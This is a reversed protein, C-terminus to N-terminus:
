SMKRNRLLKRKEWSLILNIRVRKVMIIYITDEMDELAGLGFNVNTSPRNFAMKRNKGIKKANKSNQPLPTHIM